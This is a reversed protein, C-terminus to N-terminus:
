DMGAETEERLKVGQLYGAQVSGQLAERAKALTPYGGVFFSTYFTIMAGLVPLVPLGSKKAREIGHRLEEVGFDYIERASKMVEADIDKGEM